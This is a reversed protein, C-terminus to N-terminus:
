TTNRKGKKGKPHDPVSVKDRSINPKKINAQSKGIKNDQTKIIKLRKDTNIAKNPDSAEDNVSNPITALIQYKNETLVVQSSSSSPSSSPSLRRKPRVAQAEMEEEDDARHVIVSPSEELGPLSEQQSVERPPTQPAPVIEFDKSTLSSKEKERPPLSSRGSRPPRQPLPTYSVKSRSQSANKQKGLCTLDPLSSAQSKAITSLKPNSVESKKSSKGLHPEKSNPSRVVENYKKGSLLKKAAGVSIHDVLSKMLADREFKFKSCTKSQPSHHEKCNICTPTGCCVGHEPQSCTRCLQDRQCVRSSHGYGFCKFCQLPRPMYSKIIAKINEIYIHPPAYTDRFTIIIMSSSRPVKFVKWVCSPSMELIEDETFDYIDHNFIVGKAYSFSYHPKMEKLMADKELNMSTLMISQIKDKAHILISNKGFRSIATKDISGIKRQLHNRVRILNFNNNRATAIIWEPHKPTRQHKEQLNVSSSEPSPLPFWRRSFGLYPSM